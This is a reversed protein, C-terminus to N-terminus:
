RATAPVRGYADEFRIIDDEGLYPGSQVEIMRLPIKGPNELCHRTNHPIYTSQNETVYFVEDGRTVKATGSVVIWHEARHHHLQQSLRHGPTVVIEKVQFRHGDQISRYSGWPRFVETHIYHETRGAQELEEVIKKVDQARARPVVLVVDDTAVIVLDEVGIAAILNGEGRIYCNRADLVVSDGSLVNGAADHNSIDWLASWSGVDNWGMDTAVMAGRDTHEMVAYDISISPAALFPERALRVFDLDTIAGDVAEHCRALLAPQLRAIEDLLVRAPLIFMGSNWAYDGSALYGEATKQDPKEVFRDIHWCGDITSWPVGKRIYGYGTEPRSPPIGFTVLAGEQAAAIATKLATTFAVQDNVIHDSPFLALIAEPDSKTALLAAAAAAPATNRGAPELMIALPTIGLAHMQEAILFRHEENCVIIPPAFGDGSARLVTEQLMSRESALPLLQKPKVTRSLPWLRTGAGGSLIVPFVQATM